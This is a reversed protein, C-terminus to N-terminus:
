QGQPDEGERVQCSVTFSHFIDSSCPRGESELDSTYFSRHSATVAALVFIPSFDDFLFVFCYEIM